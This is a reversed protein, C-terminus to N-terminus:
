HFYQTSPTKFPAVPLRHESDSYLPCREEAACPTELWLYALGSVGTGLGQCVAEADYHIVVDEPYMQLLDVHDVSM